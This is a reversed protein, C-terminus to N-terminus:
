IKWRQPLPKGRLMKEAEEVSIGKRLLAFVEDMGKEIGIGIGEERGEMRGEIRGDERWVKKATELNWETFIM